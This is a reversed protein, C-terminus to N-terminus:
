DKLKITDGAKINLRQATNANVELLKDIPLASSYVPLASDPESRPPQVNPLVEVVSEGKIWIFDLPFRMGKMWFPYRDEKPFIFLMGENEGLSDRDGLGKRRKDETDAIEVKIINGNIELDSLKAPQPMFPMNINQGYPSFLFMAVGIVILLLVTQIIFKKM